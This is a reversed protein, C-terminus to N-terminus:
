AVANTNANKAKKKAALFTLEWKCFRANELFFPQKEKIRGTFYHRGLKQDTV